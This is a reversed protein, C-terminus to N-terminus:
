RLTVATLAHMLSEPDGIILIGPFRNRRSKSLAFPGAAPDADFAIAVPFSGLPDLQDTVRHRSPSQTDLAREGVDSAEIRRGDRDVLFVYADPEAQRGRRMTSSVTLWAVRWEGSPRASGIAAPGTVSDVQICWDDFCWPTRMPRRSGTSAFSVALLVMAYGALVLALRRAVRKASPARRRLLLYGIRILGIITGLALAIFALDALKM